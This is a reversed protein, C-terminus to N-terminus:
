DDSDTDETILDSNYTDPYLTIAYQDDDEDIYPKVKTNVFKSIEDNVVANKKVERYNYALTGETELESIFLAKGADDPTYSTEVVKTCIIIHYGYQTAVITYAGEGQSVVLKAAAAFEEVYTDASTYPSYLYGYDTNLCGTDTSFAFLLDEFQEYLEDSYTVTGFGTGEKTAANYDFYVADGLLPQVYTTYFDTFSLKTATVESYKWATTKVGNDDETVTGDKDVAKVTGIFNAVTDLTSTRYDDGFTFTGVGDGDESYTGYNSQVWTKRQDSAELYNLLNARYEIIDRDTVGAKASYDSLLASLEDSFGILLNSVYGYGDYPNYLVFSTDSADELASEYSTVDDRYLAKQTEYEVLYQQWLGDDSLSSEEIGTILSDEYKAIVASELRSVLLSEFYTCNLSKDPDSVDFYKDKDSKRLDENASWKDGETNLGNTELYDFLESAAQKRTKTSNFDIVYNEYLYMNLDYVSPGGETSKLTTFAEPITADDEDYGLTAEVVQIEYETAKREKLEEETEDDDDEDVTPTTRATYTEDETDETEDDDDEFTTVMSNVSSRVLYIANKIEYETLYSELHKAYSNELGTGGDDTYKLTISDDDKALEYRALQTVVKNSVLNDLVVQYAQSTTYNYSSSTVYQYGYSMYGAILDRKYIKDDNLKGKLDEDSTTSSINVTAVVQSMDRDQVTTVLNCATFVSLVATVSLVLTLIKAILKKM